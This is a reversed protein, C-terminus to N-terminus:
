GSGCYDVYMCLFLVTTRWGHQDYGPDTFTEKVYLIYLSEQVTYYYMLRKECHEDKCIIQILLYSLM